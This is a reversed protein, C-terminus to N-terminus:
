MLRILMRSVEISSLESGHVGGIVLARKESTGPFYFAEIERGQKTKGLLLQSAKGAAVLGPLRDLTYSHLKDDPRYVISTLLANKKDTTDAIHNSLNGHGMNGATIFSMCAILSFITLLARMQVKM